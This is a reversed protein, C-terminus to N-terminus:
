EAPALGLKILWGASLTPLMRKEYRKTTELITLVRAPLHTRHSRAPPMYSPAVEKGPLYNPEGSNGSDARGIIPVEGKHWAGVPVGQVGTHTEGKRAGQALAVDMCEFGRYALEVRTKRGLVISAQVGPATKRAICPFIVYIGLGLIAAGKKEWLTELWNRGLGAASTYVIDHYLRDHRDDPTLVRRADNLTRGSAWMRRIREESELTSSLAEHLDGQGIPTEGYKARFGDGPRVREVPRRRPSQEAADADADVEAVAGVEAGDTGTRGLLLLLPPLGTEKGSRAPSARQELGEISTDAIVASWYEVARAGRLGARYRRSLKEQPKKEKKPRKENIKKSNTEASPEEKCFTRRGVGQRRCGIIFHAGSTQYVEFLRLLDSTSDWLLPGVSRFPTPTPGSPDRPLPEQTFAQANECLVPDIPSHLPIPVSSRVKAVRISEFGLTSMPAVQSNDGFVRQLYKRRRIRSGDGDGSGFLLRMYDIDM